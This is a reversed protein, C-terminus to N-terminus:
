TRERWEALRQVASAIKGKPISNRKEKYGVLMRFAGQEEVFLVRYDVRDLTLRFESLGEKAGKVSGFYDGDLARGYEELRKIQRSFHYKQKATLESSIEDLVSETASIEFFEVPFAAM